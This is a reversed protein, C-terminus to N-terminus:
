TILRCEGEATPLDDDAGFALVDALLDSDVDTRHMRTHHHTRTQCTARTACVRLDALDALLDADVRREAEGGM